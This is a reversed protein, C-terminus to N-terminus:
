KFIIPLYSQYSIQIDVTQNNNLIATELSNTSIELDISVTSDVVATESVVLFLSIESSELSALASLNWVLQSSTSTPPISSSIFSIDDPLDVTLLGESADISGQNGFQIIKEITTGPAALSDAMKVWVDTYTSGLSVDDLAILLQTEISDAILYEQISDNSEIKVIFQENGGIATEKSQYM